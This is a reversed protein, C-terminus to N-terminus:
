KVKMVKSFPLCCDVSVLIRKDWSCQQQQKPPQVRYCIASAEPARSSPTIIVNPKQSLYRQHNSNFFKGDSLKPNWEELVSRSTDPQSLTGPWEHCEFRNVNEELMAHHHGDRHIQNLCKLQQNKASNKEYKLEILYSEVLTSQNQFHNLIFINQAAKRRATYSM